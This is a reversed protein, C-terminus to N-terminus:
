PRYAILAFPGLVTVFAPWTMPKTDSPTERPVPPVTTDFEPSMKPEVEPMVPLPAPFSM